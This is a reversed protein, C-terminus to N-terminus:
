KMRLQEATFRKILCSQMANPTVTDPNEANFRQSLPIVNGNDDYTVTDASKIQTSDYVVVETEGMRNQNIGGEMDEGCWIFGDASDESVNNLQNFDFDYEILNTLNLYFARVNDGYQAAYAKWPAFYYGERDRFVNFNTSNGHYVKILKGDKGRLVSNSFAKEAAEDVMRQATEMDGRNVAYFSRESKTQRKIYKRSIERNIM